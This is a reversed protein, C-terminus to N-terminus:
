NKAQSNEIECRAWQCCMSIYGPNNQVKELNLSLYKRTSGEGVDSEKEDLVVKIKRTGSEREELRRWLHFSEAFFTWQDLPFLFLLPCLWRLEYLRLRNECGVFKLIMLFQNEKMGSLLIRGEKGIIVTFAICKVYPLLVISM